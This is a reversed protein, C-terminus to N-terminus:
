RRGGARAFQLAMAAAGLTLLPVGFGAGLTLAANAEEFGLALLQERQDAAVHAIARFVEKRGAIRGAFGVLLAASGFGLVLGAFLLAQRARSAMLMAFTLALMVVGGLGLLAVLYGSPGANRLLEM